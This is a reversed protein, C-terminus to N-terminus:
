GGLFRCTGPGDWCLDDICSGCDCDADSFCSRRLCGHRDAAPHSPRCSASAPCDWEGECSLPRCHGDPLCVEDALCGSTACPPRCREVAVGCGCATPDTECVTELPCDADTVCESVECVDGCYTAGPPFCGEGDECDWASTCTTFAPPPPGWGECMPLTCDPLCSDSYVARGDRTCSIRRNCCANALMCPMFTDPDCRDGAHGGLDVFDDCTTWVPDPPGADRPPPADPMADRPPPPADPMADPPPPPADPMADPPPPPADPMADPPPPADPGADPPPPPADPPMADPPCRPVQEIIQGDSCSRVPGCRVGGATCSGAFDCEAGIEAAFSGECSTVVGRGETEVCGAGLVLLAFGLM